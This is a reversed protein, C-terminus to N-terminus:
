WCNREFNTDVKLDHYLNYREKTRAQSQSTNFLRCSGTEGSVSCSAYAYCLQYMSYFMWSHPVSLGCSHFHQPSYKVTKKSLNIKAFVNRLIKKILNTKEFSKELIKDGLIKGWLIKKEFYNKEWNEGEGVLM